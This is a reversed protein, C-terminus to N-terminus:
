VVCCRQRAASLLYIRMYKHLTPAVTLRFVFYEDFNNFVFDGVVDGDGQCLYGDDAILYDSGLFRTEQRV